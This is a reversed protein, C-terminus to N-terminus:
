WPRGVYVTLMISNRSPLTMWSVCYKASGKSAGSQRLWHTWCIDHRRVMVM